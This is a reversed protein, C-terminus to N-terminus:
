LVAIESETRASHSIVFLVGRGNPLAEPQYHFREGRAKDPTTVSEPVGGTERVREIGPKSNGDFYIYGDYGGAIGGLAVASDTVTIPTGGGRPVVKIMYPPTRTAVFGLRLGDPSFFPNVAGQTGPVPTAHPQDLTRIWLQTGGEPSAGVYVLQKGS